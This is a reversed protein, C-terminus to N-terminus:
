KIKLYLPLKVLWLGPNEGVKRKNDIISIDIDAENIIVIKIPIRM